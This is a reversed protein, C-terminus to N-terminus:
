LCNCEVVDLIAGRPPSLISAFSRLPFQDDLTYSTEDYRFDASSNRWHSHRRIRSMLSHKCKDKYEPVELACLPKLQLAYTPSVSASPPRLNTIHWRKTIPSANGTAATTTSSALSSASLTDSSEPSLSLSDTPEM